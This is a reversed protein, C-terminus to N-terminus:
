DFVYGVTAGLFTLDQRFLQGNVSDDEYDIDLVKFGTAFRNGGKLELSYVLDFAWTFDSGGAGIDFSTTSTWKDGIESNRRIGIFGDVWADDRQVAALLAPDLELEFDWYRVGLELGFRSLERVYGAELILTDFSAETVGGITAIEDEPELSMWVLDGFVTDEGKTGEVHVLAAGALVHLLDSFEVDVDRAIPGLAVDGEIGAAWLYPAVKWDWDQAFASSTGALTALLTIIRLHM